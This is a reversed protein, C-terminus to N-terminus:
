ALRSLFPSPVEPKPRTKVVAQGGAAVLEGTNPDIRYHVVTYAQVVEQGSAMARALAHIIHGREHDPVMIAAQGPTMTTPYQMSANPDGSADQYTLQSEEKKGPRGPAEPQGPQDDAKRKEDPAGTGGSPAGADGPAAQRAAQEAMLWAAVLAGRAALARAADVANRARAAELPSAKLDAAVAAEAKRIAQATLPDTAPDASVPRLGGPPPFVPSASIAGLAM